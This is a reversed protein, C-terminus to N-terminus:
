CLYIHLLVESCQVNWSGLLGAEGYLMKAIHFPCIKAKLDMCMKEIIDFIFSPSLQVM